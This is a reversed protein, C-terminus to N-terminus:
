ISIRFPNFKQLISLFSSYDVMDGNSGGIWGHFNDHAQEFWGDFSHQGEHYSDSNMETFTPVIAWPVGIGQAGSFFEIKMANIIETHYTKFLGIKANWDDLAKGPQTPKGAELIADRKVFKSTGDRSTGNYSLAYKLPNFRTTGDPHVYTEDLFM